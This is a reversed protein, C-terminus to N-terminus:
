LCGLLWLKRFLQLLNRLLQVTEASAFSWYEAERGVTKEEGCESHTPKRMPLFQSLSCLLFLFCSSLQAKLVTGHCRSLLMWSSAVLVAKLVQMNCPSYCLIWIKQRTNRVPLHQLEVHEKEGLAGVNEVGCIHVCMCAGVGLSAYINVCPSCWWLDELLLM